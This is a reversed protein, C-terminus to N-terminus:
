KFQSFMKIPQKNYHCIMSQRKRAEGYWVCVQVSNQWFTFFFFCRENIDRRKLTLCFVSKYSIKHNTYRSDYTRPFQKSRERIRMGESSDVSYAHTSSFLVVKDSWFHQISVKIFKLSINKEEEHSHRIKIEELTSNKNLVNWNIRTKLKINNKKGKCFTIFIFECALVVRTYWFIFLTISNWITWIALVFIIATLLKCNM